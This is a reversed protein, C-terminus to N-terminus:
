ARVAPMGDAEFQELFRTYKSTQMTHKAIARLADFVQGMDARLNRIEQATETGGGLLDATQRANFIRSPGTVELEPGHEGVMRLGGGFDGGAAFGPIGQSKAWKQINAQQGDAWSMQGDQGINFLWDQNWSQTGVVQNGVVKLGMSAGHEDLITGDNAVQRKVGGLGTVSTISSNANQLTQAQQMSGAFLSLADAVSKVGSDIGLLADLQAQAATLQADLGSTQLDYSAKAQDLQGQLSDLLRQETTLQAGNVGQLQAILNATRGQERQLDELTSYRGSDITGAADLANQLGAFGALSGGAKAFALASRLTAVAQEHLLATAQESSGALQKLAADLSSGVATLSSVAGNATGVRDNISAVRANYADSLRQQEAGIASSLTSLAGKAASVAAGSTAAQVAQARQEVIDYYSDAQGALNMLTAFMSRGAETTLDISEVMARYEARTAPLTQNADAFAQTVDALTNAQKEADSFFQDYYTSVSSTLADLGGTLGLLEEVLKGGAVNTGFLGVNLHDLLGNVAYLDNVFTTMGAIDYSLGTGLTANLYSNISEGAQTFWDGIAKSIEDQTKGKTSIKSRAIQLGDFTGQDITYGLQEFLAAVSDETSAFTDQMQQALDGGLPDYTTKKKHSLLGSKKKYIYSQPNLDGNNVGLALGYDKIKWTGFLAGGVFKGITSGIASGVPGGFFAGIAAGALTTLGNGIGEKFGGYVNYAAGAVSAVDGVVGLAAGFKALAQESLGLQAAFSSASAGMRSLASQLQFSAPAYTSAGGYLLKGVVQGIGSDLSGLVGSAGSGLYKGASTIGGLIGSGAKYASYLGGLSGLVGSGGSLSGWIGSGVTSGTLGGIGLASGIQLMIPRTIAMHALEALMQEFARKLSSSFSDFGHGINLWADSFAQDVRDLQRETFQAWQSTENRAQQMARQIATIEEPTKAQAMLENLHEIRRNLKEQSTATSDILGAIEQHAELGKRAEEQVLAQRQLEATEKQLADADKGALAALVSKEINYASQAATGETVSRSNAVLVETQAQLDGTQQRTDAILKGLDRRDIANQQERIARTVAERAGVGTKLLEQEVKEQLSLERVNDAGGLYADAMLNASQTANEAEALYDKLAKAANKAESTAGESAKKQSENAKKQTEIARANELAKVRDAETADTHERIWREAEKVANGNDQLKALQAEQSKLYLKGSESLGANAETNSRTQDELVKLGGAAKLAGEREREMEAALREVLGRFEDGPPLGAVLAQAFDNIGAGGNETAQRFEKLPALWAEVPLGKVNGLKYFAAEVEGAMGRISRNSQNLQSQLDTALQNRQAAGLEKWKAILQDLPGSLDVTAKKVEQSADRLMFYSTAAGVALAALGAPGGLLSLLGSGARSVLSSAAAYEAKAKTAAATAAADTAMASRATSSAATAQLSATAVQKKAAALELEVGALAAAYRAEEATGKALAAQFALNAANAELVRAKGVAEAQAATANQYATVSDKLKAAASVTSAQAEEAKAAALTRSAAAESLMARTNQIAAAGVKSTLLVAAAAASGAALAGVDFSEALTTMLPALHAAVQTGAGQFSRQLDDVADKFANLNKVDLESLVLGAQEAQDGIEQFRKGGNALLPLLATAEDAMAEMYTTMQQQNVGAKQLSDYYLQLAQPGSLQRFSEITVGVAPAIQDFFQKMEGGGSSSFQGIRDNVDKLIDALKEQDVGVTKAGAAMRQFETTSANAISSLSAIERATEATHMVLGSLGAAVGATGAGISSFSIGAVEGLRDFASDVKRLSSDIKGATKEVAREGSSLEQRMQATTAEIRILMGQVDQDAM